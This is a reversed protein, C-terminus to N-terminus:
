IIYLSENHLKLSAKKCLKSIHNDFSLINNITIGLLKVSKSGTILKQDINLTIEDRHNNVLLKCKDLNMVLYNDLFWTRLKLANRELM